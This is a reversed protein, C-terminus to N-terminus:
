ASGRYSSFYNNHVIAELNNTKNKEPILFIEAYQMKKMLDKILDVPVPKSLVQNMGCEIAKDIYM